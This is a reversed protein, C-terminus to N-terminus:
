ENARRRPWTMSQLYWGGETSGVCPPEGQVRDVIVDGDTAVGAVLGEIILLAIAAVLVVAQHGLGNIELAVLEGRLVRVV